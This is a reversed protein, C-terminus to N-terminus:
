KNNKHFVQGKKKAQGVFMKASIGEIKNAENVLNSISDRYQSFIITKEDPKINKLIKELEEYKPHEVKLEKLNRALVLASKFNLDSVLNKVAKTKTSISKSILDEMYSILPTIGQSELLELAHGIKMAEAVLSIGKM